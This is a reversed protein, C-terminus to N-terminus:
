FPYPPTAISQLTISPLSSDSHPCCGTTGNIYLSYDHFRPLDIPQASLKAEIVDCNRFYASAAHEYADFRLRQHGIQLVIYFSFQRHISRWFGLEDWASVGVVQEFLKGQLKQDASM